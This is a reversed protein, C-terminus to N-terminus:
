CMAQACPRLCRPSSRDSPVPAIIVETSVKTRSAQTLADVQLYITQDMFRVRAYGAHMTVRKPVQGHLQCTEPSYCLRQKESRTHQVKHVRTQLASRHHRAHAVFRNNERM